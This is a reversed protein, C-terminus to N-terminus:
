NSKKIEKDTKKSIQNIEKNSFFVKNSKIKGYSFKKEYNLVARDGNKKVKEIIKRVITALNKQNSKRKELFVKLNKHSNKSSYKLLKLM